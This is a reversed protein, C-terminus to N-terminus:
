AEEVSSKFKQMLNRLHDVPVVHATRQNDVSEKAWAVAYSVEFTVPYTNDRLRLCEYARCFKVLKEMTLQDQYKDVAAGNTAGIRKLDAFISRINDYRLTIEERSVVVDIFGEQSLADAIHQMKPFTNVHQYDDIDAWVERIECLTKPGFASMMFFGGPTLVRSVEAFVAAYDPVWQLMLNSYIGHYSWDSFPMKRADGCVTKFATKQESLACLEPAIDLATIKSQPYLTHLLEAMMGSGSGLDLINGPTKRIVRAKDLLRKAIELQLFASNKYTKEISEIASLLKQESPHM